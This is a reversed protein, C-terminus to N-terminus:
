YAKLGLREEIQQRMEETWPEAGFIGLRLCLEEKKVGMEAMEDAIYLAYSPTCCLVTAKFDRLLEVQRRTNGGSVPIVTAGVREAGYHLGLGGTFLGYGYAVHVIDKSTVGVNTLSRAMCESWTHIDNETYGVVTMKGTTGSSAHVRVVQDMPVAFTGFPYNDRLDTKYTFPLKKLDEVGNIDDPTVGARKMKEAYYPVNRYVREITAKLREGQLKKLAELDMTEIDANWYGAM